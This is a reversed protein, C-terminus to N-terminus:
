FARLFQNQNNKRKFLLSFYLFLSRNPAKKKKKIVSELSSPSRLDHDLRHGFLVVMDVLGHCYTDCGTKGLVGGPM